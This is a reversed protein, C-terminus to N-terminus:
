PELNMRRLVVLQKTKEPSGPFTIESVIVVSSLDLLRM